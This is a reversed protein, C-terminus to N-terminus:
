MEGFQAADFLRHKTAYHPWCNAAVSSFKLLKELVVSYSGFLFCPRGFPHIPYWPVKIFSAKVVNVKVAYFNTYTNGDM